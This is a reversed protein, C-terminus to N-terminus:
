CCMVPNRTKHIRSKQDGWRYTKNQVQQSHMRQSKEQGVHDTGNSFFNSYNNSNQTLFSTKEVWFRGSSLIYVGRNFLDSQFNVGIDGSVCDPEITRSWVSESFTVWMLAGICNFNSACNPSIQGSFKPEYSKNPNKERIRKM